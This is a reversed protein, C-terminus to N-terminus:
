QDRIRTLQCSSPPWCLAIKNTAGSGAEQISAWLMSTKMVAPISEAGFMLGTNCRCPPLVNEKKPDNKRAHLLWVFLLCLEVTRPEGRGDKTGRDNKRPVNTNVVVKNTLLACDPQM